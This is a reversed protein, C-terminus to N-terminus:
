MECHWIALMKSRIWWRSAHRRLYFSGSTVWIITVPFDRSNGQVRKREPPNGLMLLARRSERDSTRLSEAADRRGSHRGRNARRATVSVYCVPSRWPSPGHPPSFVSVPPRLGGGRRRPAYRISLTRDTPTHITYQTSRRRWPVYWVTLQAQAHTHTHTHVDLLLTVQM